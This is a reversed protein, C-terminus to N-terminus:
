KNQEKLSDILLNIRQDTNMLYLNGNFLKLINRPLNRFLRLLKSMIYINHKLGFQLLKYKIKIVINDYSDFNDFVNKIQPYLEKTFKLTCRSLNGSDWLNFYGFLSDIILINIIKIINPYDKKRNIIDLKLTEFSKLAAKLMENTDKTLSNVSNIRCYYCSTEDISITKIYLFLLAYFPQDEVRRVNYFYINNNVLINRKVLKNAGGCFVVMIRCFFLSLNQENIETTTTIGLSKSMNCKNRKTDNFAIRGGFVIDSNYKKANNYLKECFNNDIFDDSDVFLIYEGVAIRLGFNRAVGVGQNQQSLIRFRKDKKAYEELISLSNDTSGDNICICEFDKFTQYIISDLCQRLYKEVNYVPIIISIKINSNM